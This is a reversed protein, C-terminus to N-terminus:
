PSSPIAGAPDTAPLKLYLIGAAFDIRASYQDLFESGIVGDYPTRDANILGQITASFDDPSVNDVQFTTSGFTLQAGSSPPVSWREFVKRDVSVYSRFGTDIKLFLPTGNLKVRAAYGGGSLRYLPISIFGQSESALTLPSPGARAILIQDIGHVVGNIALLDPQVITGRRIVAGNDIHDLRTLDTRGNSAYFVLAAGAPHEIGRVLNRLTTSTLYTDPLLHARLVRALEATDARLRELVDLGLRAFASDTPAFVTLQGAHRFEDTMAQRIRQRREKSAPMTDLGAHHIVEPRTDWKVPATATPSAATSELLSQLKAAQMLELFTRYQGASELAARVTQAPRAVTKRPPEPARTTSLLYLTDTSFDIIAARNALLWNGIGGNGGFPNRVLVDLSDALMLPGITIRDAVAFNNVQTGYVTTASATLGTLRIGPADALSPDLLLSLDLGSDLHFSLSVTDAAGEVFQPGGPDSRFPIAVYGAQALLATVPASSDAVPAKLASDSRSQAAASTSYIPGFALLVIVCGFARTTQAGPM